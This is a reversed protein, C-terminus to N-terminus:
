KGGVEKELYRNSLRQEDELNSKIQVWSVQHTGISDWNAIMHQLIHLQWSMDARMHLDHSMIYAPYLMEKKFTLAIKWGFM